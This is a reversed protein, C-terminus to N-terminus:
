LTMLTVFAGFSHTKVYSVYNSLSKYYLLYLRSVILRSILDLHFDCHGWFSLHCEAMGLHRWVGFNINISTWPECLSSFHKFKYAKRSFDKFILDAKFLVPFDSFLRSFAKFEVIKRYSKAGFGTGFLPM